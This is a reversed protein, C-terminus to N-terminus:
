RRDGAPGKRAKQEQASEGSESRGESTGEAEPEIGIAVLGAGTIRLAIPGQDDHRWVPLEGTARIEEVLGRSILREVTNRAAQGNLREPLVLGHDYRQAASSLIALQTDTLKTM